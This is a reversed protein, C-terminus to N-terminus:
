SVKTKKIKTFIFYLALFVIAVLPLYVKLKDGAVEGFVHFLGFAIGLYLAASSM